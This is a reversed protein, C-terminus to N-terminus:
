KYLVNSINYKIVEFLLHSEACKFLKYHRKSIEYCFTLFVFKKTYINPCLDAITGNQPFILLVDLQM